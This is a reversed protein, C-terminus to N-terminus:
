RTGEEAPEPTAPFRTLELLCVGGDGVPTGPPLSQRAVFGQGRLRPEWGLEVLTRVADRASLGTLDPLVARSTGVPAPSPPHVGMVPQITPGDTQRAVVIPPQRDVNPPIALHRLAADAIKQFV